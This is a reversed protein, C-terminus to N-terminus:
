RKVQIIIQNPDNPKLYLELRKELCEDLRQNWLFMSVVFFSCIGIFILNEMGCQGMFAVVVVLLFIAFVGFGITLSMAASKEAINRLFRPREEVPVKEYIKKINDEMTDTNDKGYQGLFRFFMACGISLYYALGIVFFFSFWDPMKDLAELSKEWLTAPPDTKPHLFAELSKEWVTTPPDTEINPATVELYLYILGLIFGGPLIRAILDFFLEPIFSFDSPKFPSPM